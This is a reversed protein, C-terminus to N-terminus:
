SPTVPQYLAPHSAFPMAPRPARAFMLPSSWRVVSVFRFEASGRYLRTGLHGRQPAVLERAARWRALFEEDAGDSVEFPEILLVGGAGDPDGDECVVEYLDGPGLRVFPFAVDDRLARYLDGGAGEPAALFQILM